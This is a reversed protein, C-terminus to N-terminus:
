CYDEATSEDAADGRVTPQPGDCPQAPGEAERMGTQMGSPQLGYTYGWQEPTTMTRVREGGGGRDPPQNPGLQIAEAM